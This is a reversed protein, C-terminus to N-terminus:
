GVLSAQHTQLNQLRSSGDGRGDQKLVSSSVGTRQGARLEVPEGQVTLTLATVEQRDTREACSRLNSATTRTEFHRRPSHSQLLSEDAGYILCAERELQLRDHKFSM